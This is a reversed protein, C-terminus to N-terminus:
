VGGGNEVYDAYLADTLLERPEPDSQMEIASDIAGRLKEVRARLADREARASEIEKLMSELSSFHRCSAGKEGFFESIYGYCGESTSLDYTKKDTLIIESM